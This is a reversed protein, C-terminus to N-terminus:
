VIISLLLYVSIVMIIKQIGILDCTLMKNPQMGHLYFTVITMVNM